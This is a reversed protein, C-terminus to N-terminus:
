GPNSGAIWRWDRWGFSYRMRAIWTAFITDDENKPYIDPAVREFWFLSQQMLNRDIMFWANADTLYHWTVFQFRGNQPNIDNDASGTLGVAQTINAAENELEPPVLLLNPYVGVMNAADDTFSMMAQRVTEVNAATLALAFNNDQTVSTKHPSAPHSDSCLAVGDGGTAATFAANFVSAADVERKLAASDGLQQTYQQIQAYKADEM